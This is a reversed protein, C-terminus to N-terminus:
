FFIAFSLGCSFFFGGTGSSILRIKGITIKIADGSVGHRGREEKMERRCDTGGDQQCNLRQRAKKRDREGTAANVLV